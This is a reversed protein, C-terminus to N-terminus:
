AAQRQSVQRTPIENKSECVLWQMPGARREGIVQSQREQSLDALEPLSWQNPRDHDQVADIVTVDHTRCFQEYLQACIGPRFLDHTEIIFDSNVFGKAANENILLEAESGEIDCIVLGRKGYLDGFMCEAEISVRGDVGNAIAMKKIAHRAERGLEYAIVKTDPWRMACGIAYYGEAGGVDIVVPYDKALLRDIIPQLEAEYTGLLKPALTSGHSYAHPYRLGQFPGRRVTLDSAFQDVMERGAAQIMTRRRQREKGQHTRRQKRVGRRYNRYAEIPGRKYWRITKTPRNPLDFGAQSVVDAIEWFEDAFPHPRYTQWPKLGEGSFHILHPDTTPLPLSDPGRFFRHTVNYEPALRTWGDAFHVALIDQDPFVWRDPDQMVKELMQESTRNRRWAALDIALVGSNLYASDLPLGLRVIAPHAEPVAGLGNEGLEIEAMEDLPRRVLTDSDLYIVRGIGPPLIQTLALRFLVSVNWTSHSSFERPFSEPVLHFDLAQDYQQVFQHIKSQESDALDGDHVVHFQCPRTQSKIVSLISVLAFNMFDRNVTYVLQLPTERTRECDMAPKKHFSNTGAFRDDIDGM